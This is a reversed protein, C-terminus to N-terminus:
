IKLDIGVTSKTLEQLDKNELLEKKNDPLFVINKFKNLEPVIEKIKQNAIILKANNVKQVIKNFDEKNKIVFSDRIGALKMGMAFEYTGLVIM